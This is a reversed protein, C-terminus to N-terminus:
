FARPKFIRVPSALFEFGYLCQFTLRREPSDYFVTAQAVFCDSAGDSSTQPDYKSVIRRELSQLCALNRSKWELVSFVKLVNFISKSDCRQAFLFERLINRLDIEMLLFFFFFFCVFLIWPFSFYSFLCLIPLLQCISAIVRFATFLVFRSVLPFRRM